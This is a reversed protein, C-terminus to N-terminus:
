IFRDVVAAKSLNIIEPETQDGERSLEQGIKVNNSYYGAKKVSVSFGSHFSSAKIFCHIYFLLTRRVFVM